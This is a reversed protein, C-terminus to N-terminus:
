ALALPPVALPKASFTNQPREPRGKPEMPKVQDSNELIALEILYALMSRQGQKNSLLLATELHQAIHEHYDM